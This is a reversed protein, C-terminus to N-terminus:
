GVYNEALATSYARSSVVNTLQATQVRRDFASDADFRHLMTTMWWSFYEARWVARLARDTYTRLGAEEGTRVQETLARALLDVDRIALNMGKAGTPPVTHAADGALFLRGRQMPEGVYSRLPALSREFIEGRTPEWPQGDLSFRLALEDWIREDPWEELRDTSPVQLYLRTVTPSRMSYLAFGNEHNAYVLEHIRPAAHALIGLWAFPYVKEIPTLAGGLAPRGAGHAGDCAVVFDAVIRHEGGDATYTVSPEASDIDHIAAPGCAFRVDGGDALRRETLDHVIEQQGYVTIHRGTLDTMAIRHATGDFRLEIGEHPLGERDMRDGVGARRLIDAAGHEIVGARVRAQVYDRDQAEVLITAIGEEHLLHSLLLGAPGAGVVVVQTRETSM